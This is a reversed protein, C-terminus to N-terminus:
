LWAPACSMVRVTVSLRPPDALTVFDTVVCACTKAADSENPRTTELPQPAASTPPVHAGM